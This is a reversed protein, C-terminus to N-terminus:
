TDSALRPVDRDWVALLSVFEGAALAKKIKTPLTGPLAKEKSDEESEMALQTARTNAEISSALRGLVSGFASYM